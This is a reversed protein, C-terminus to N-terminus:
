EPYAISILFYLLAGIAGTLAFRLNQKAPVM